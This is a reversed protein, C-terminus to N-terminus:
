NYLENRANGTQRMNLTGTTVTLIIKYILRAM